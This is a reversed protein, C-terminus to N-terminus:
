LKVHPKEAELEVLMEKPVGVYLAELKRELDSM